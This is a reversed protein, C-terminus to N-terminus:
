LGMEKSQQVAKEYAADFGKDGKVAEIVANVLAVLDDHGKQVVAAEGANMTGEPFDFNAVALKDNGGVMNDAAAADTLLADIKGSAVEMAVSPWKDLEFLNSETLVGKILEAQVTGLQAGVTKGALDEISKISDENGKMVVLKQASAIYSESFDVEEAREGTYTIAAIGIDAKGSKVSPVIGDFAMDVVKLKVGLAAAIQEGLWMDCGLFNGKADIFEFPAYQAETALVLEGKAKIADITEGTFSAFDEAKVVVDSDGAAAESNAASTAESPAASPAESNAGSTAASGCAAMSLAMAACLIVSLVKKM